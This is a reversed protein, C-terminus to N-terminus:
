QNTSSVGIREEYVHGTSTKYSYMLLPQTSTIEYTKGPVVKLAQDKRVALDLGPEREPDLTFTYMRTIRHNLIRSNSYVPATNEIGNEAEYISTGPSLVIHCTLKVLGSDTIEPEEADLWCRPEPSICFYVVLLVGACVALFATLLFLKKKM